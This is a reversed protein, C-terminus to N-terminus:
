ATGGSRDLRHAEHPKSEILRSVPMCRVGFRGFSDFVQRGNRASTKELRLVIGGAVLQSRELSRDHFFKRGTPVGRNPQGGPHSGVPSGSSDPIKRTLVAARERRFPHSWAFARPAIWPVRLTRASVNPKKGDLGM